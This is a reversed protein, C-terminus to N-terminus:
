GLGPLADIGGSDARLTLRGPREELSAVSAPARGVAHRGPEALATPDTFDFYEKVPEPRPTRCRRRM